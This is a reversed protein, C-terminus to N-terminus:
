LATRNETHKAQDSDEVVAWIWPQKITIARVDTM